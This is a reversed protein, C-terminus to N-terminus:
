KTVYNGQGMCFRELLDLLRVAKMSEVYMYMYITSTYINVYINCIYLKYVCMYIQRIKYM